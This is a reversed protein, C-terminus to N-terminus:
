GKGITNHIKIGDLEPVRRDKKNRLKKLGLHVSVIGLSAGAIRKFSNM